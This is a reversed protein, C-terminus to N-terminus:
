DQYREPCVGTKLATKGINGVKDQHYAQSYTKDNCLLPFQFESLDGSEGLTVSHLVPRLSLGPKRTRFKLEEWLGLHGRIVGSHLNGVMGSEFNCRDGAVM